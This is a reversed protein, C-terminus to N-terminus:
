VRRDVRPVICIITAERKVMPKEDIPHGFHILSGIFAGFGILGIISILLLVALTM